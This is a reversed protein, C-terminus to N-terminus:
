RWFQRSFIARHSRRVDGEAPLFFSRRTRGFNESYSPISSEFFGELGLELSFFERAHPWHALCTDPVNRAVAKGFHIADLEPEGQSVFPTAARPKRRSAAGRMQPSARDM